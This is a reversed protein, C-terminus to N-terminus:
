LSVPKDRGVIAFYQFMSVSSYFSSLDIKLESVHISLRLFRLSTDKSPLYVLGRNLSKFYTKSGLLVVCFLLVM